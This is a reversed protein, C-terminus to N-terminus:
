GNLYKHFHKWLKCTVKVDQECYQEMEESWAKWDTDKSFCGKYEGLRYGYSELSHRGYMGLPMNNWNKQKDLAIMDSHYLRSLILTDIVKTPEFWPYLKKIVPVDYSIVNHGIIVDADHLRQVGRVVPEANGSDNYSIIKHTETDYISICHITTVNEKLGDTEIDFILTLEREM